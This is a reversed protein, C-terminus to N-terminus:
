GTCCFHFGFHARARRAAMGSLRQLRTQRKRCVKSHFLFVSGVIGLASQSRRSINGVSVVLLCSRNVGGVSIVLQFSRSVRGVSVLM